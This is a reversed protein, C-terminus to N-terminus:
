LQSPCLPHVPQAPPPGGEGLSGAEEWPVWRALLGLGRDQPGVWGVLPDPGWRAGEPAEWRCIVSDAPNSWNLHQVVFDKGGMMSGSYPSIELCFDRVDVCCSALGFCTPHCSCPGSQDGCRQSCSGQAGPPSPACPWTACPAQRVRGPLGKCAAGPSLQSPVASVVM